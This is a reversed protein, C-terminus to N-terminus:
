NAPTISSFSFRRLNPTDYEEMSMTRQRVLGGKGSASGMRPRDVGTLPVSTLVGLGKCFLLLSQAFKDPTESLVDGVDDIKLLSAKTKNCAQHMTHVANVHSAKSGTVLLTEVGLKSELKSSFDSRKLFAEVYKRLNRPNIKSQLRDQFEKILSEKNEASELQEVLRNGFKHIILYQEASSPVGSSLKWSIFKDKFHEMVGASSATCHILILGMCRDPAAMAFRALINAGAGEGLGIVLKVELKDLVGPLDESIQQMTPFTMESPLDEANDDQGPVVVHIFISRERTEKMVPHELFQVWANHNCGLDHVTLFVARQDIKTLDGQVYVILKKCNTADFEHKQLDSM